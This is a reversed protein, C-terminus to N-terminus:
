ASASASIKTEIEAAWGRREDAIAKARVEPWHQACKQRWATWEDGGTWLDSWIMALCDRRAEKATQLGYGGIMVRHHHLVLTFRRLSDSWRWNLRDTWFPMFWGPPTPNAPPAPARTALM